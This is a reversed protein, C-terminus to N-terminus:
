IQGDIIQEDLELREENYAFVLDTSFNPPLLDFMAIEIIGTLLQMLNAPFVVKFLPLHVVMQLTRILQLMFIAGGQFIYNAAIAVFVFITLNTALQAVQEVYEQTFETDYMQKPIKASLVMNERSYFTNKEICKIM